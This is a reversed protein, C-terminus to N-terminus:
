TANPMSENSPWARFFGSDLPDVATVSAEVAAIGGPIDCGGAKGGQAGILGDVTVVVDRIERDGLSGGAQRTD